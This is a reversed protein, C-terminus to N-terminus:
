KFVNAFDQLIPSDELSPIKCKKPEQVHAAYLLCGKKFCRKLQLASIERISISRPIGKVVKQQGEGDIYTVSKNHCYLIVHHAYLWDMGILIDYSGLPIINIDVITSLGNMDLPFGM